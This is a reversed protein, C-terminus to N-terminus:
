EGAILIYYPQGDTRGNTCIYQSNNVPYNILLNAGNQDLGVGALQNFVYTASNVKWAIGGAVDCILQLPLSTVGPLYTFNSPGPVTTGVYTHKYLHLDYIM